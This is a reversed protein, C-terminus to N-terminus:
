GKSHKVKFGSEPLSDVDTDSLVDGKKLTHVSKLVKYHTGKEGHPALHVTDETIESFKQMDEEIVRGLQNVWLGKEVESGCHESTRDTIKEKCVYHHAPANRNRIDTGSKGSSVYTKGGHHIEKHGDNEKGPLKYNDVVHGDKTKRTRAGKEDIQSFKKEM